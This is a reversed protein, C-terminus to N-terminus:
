AVCECLLSSTILCFDSSTIYFVSLAVSLCLYFLDESLLSIFFLETVVFSHLLNYEFQREPMALTCQLHQPLFRAVLKSTSEAM